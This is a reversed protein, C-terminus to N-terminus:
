TFSFHWVIFKLETLVTNHSPHCVLQLDSLALLAHLWKKICVEFMYFESDTFDECYREENCLLECHLSRAFLKLKCIRIECWCHKICVPYFWGFKDLPVNFDSINL